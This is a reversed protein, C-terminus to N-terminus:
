LLKRWQGIWTGWGYFGLPLLRGQAVLDDVQSQTPGAKETPGFYDDIIVWCGDRLRDGYLDLDHAVNSHADFLFFGVTDPAMIERVRALTAEDEATANILTVMELLDFRALNKQLTKFINRTALKHGKLRGGPEISIFSKPTGSDRIGLAAAITSGGVFSGIEIIPGDCIRALHHTLILVDTHLMSYRAAKSLQDRTPKDHRCDIVAKMLDLALQTTPNM